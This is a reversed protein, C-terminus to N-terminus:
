KNEEKEEEKNKPEEYFLNYGWGCKECKFYDSGNVGADATLQEGCCFLKM